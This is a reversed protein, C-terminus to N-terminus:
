GWAQPWQGSQSKENTGAKARPQSDSRLWAERPLKRKGDTYFPHQVPDDSLGGGQTHTKMTIQQNMIQNQTAGAPVGM